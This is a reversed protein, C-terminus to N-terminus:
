DYGRRRAQMSWVTLWLVAATFAFAAGWHEFRVRALMTTWVLWAAAAAYLCLLGKLGARRANHFMARALVREVEVDRVPWARCRRLTRGDRAWLRLHWLGGGLAVVANAAWVAALAGHGTEPTM